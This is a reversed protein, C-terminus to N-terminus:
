KRGVRGRLAQAKQRMYRRIKEIAEYEVPIMVLTLMTSSVLGSVFATAMPAWSMSKHPIGIAMPLLGLLTTVTTIFVPRMRAAASEMIADRLPRGRKQRKNMFDILLISNNVAVGALGVVAMFSGITFYTRTAFLGLVVGILAFPVASLIIAPQVYDNFQSALVLYICLIAVFFALTLSTYSRSTSEFEGGYSLSVGPFRNRNATFFDSVLKRVRASSLKSGSKIDASITITPRGNYRARVNPEAFYEAELLDSLLIPSAANEVVPVSLVDTPALLGTGAPSEEDSSRAVRVVLDVEEDVSRFQGARAGSLCGAAVGVADAPTLGYEKIKEQKAVFRVARQMDPRNDELDRVDALEPDEQIFKEVGDAAALADEMTLGTVRINVAKGSPPGDGEEFVRVVPKVPESAYSGDVYERIKKRMYDLHLMPDNKPNEPFDRNKVEPLTVVVQGYYNGTLHQYEENEYYGATGEASQAAEQGMAMIYRSIDRVVGDTKELATGVPMEVTVHYRFYNGPFFMVKILPAVGLISLVLMSICAIFLLAIGGIALAKVRLLVLLIGRYVRWVPAFLGSRLHHYPDEQEDPSTKAFKKPGWDLIHVPLIFLAELLSAALAYAVTKPVYSFFEGTSGSMLLMPVFALMTTLLSTIVPVIVEATGDVVATRRDKGLQLHRYVNEIIVTADDVLIGSLLVFSFLVINNLSVDNIRLIVFCCLYSFPVGVGALMANRFGLTIWLIIIVLSMGLLLNGGLTNVSDRIELTSDKNFVVNIGQDKHAEAFKESIEKVQRAISLANGTREKLVRMRIANEGNISPIQFPDRNNLGASATLDGVRVLHGDSDRKVVISLVQQQTALREGTDLQFETQGEQFRGSPIKTNAAAIAQAVAGFTVNFRRLKAPDLSVHFEKEVEGELQASRVDPVALIQSKLEDAILKLSRQPLDGMVNVMVVPKWVDTDIYLFYPEEAGAPLKQKVNLTRFRLEDYLDRYDTDDIFKVQVSSFNRYSNSQIYEVSDMDELAEELERTVLQEVDAAPAGFYNTHIFVKGIDVKPLNEVPMTFLCFAGAVTLIIFLVNIFVNQSLIFRVLSKM